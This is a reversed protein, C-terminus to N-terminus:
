TKYYKTSVIEQRKVLAIDKTTFIYIDVDSINDSTKAAFSGGIAIAIVEDLNKYENIIKDM